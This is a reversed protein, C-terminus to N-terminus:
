RLVFGGGDNRFDVAISEGASFNMVKRAIHDFGDSRRSDRLRLDVVHRGVPVVFREYVRSPGDGALGTPPLTAAFLPTDDLDIELRLSVRERPCDMPRRMNPALAALEERTRKRCEVKSDGGHTFSVRLLAHDEPFHRYSPAASFFGVFGVFACLVLAQALYKFLSNM